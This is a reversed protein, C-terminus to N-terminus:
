PKREAAAPKAKEGRGDGKWFDYLSLARHPESPQKSTVLIGYDRVVFHLGVWVGNSMQIPFLDELAQFVAGLPVDRLQLNIPTDALNGLPTTVLFTVGPAKQELRKLAEQVPMEKFDVSVSTDLAKRIKEAVSGGITPQADPQFTAVLKGTGVDWLRVGQRLTLDKLDRYRVARDTAQHPKGQLYLAQAELDALQTKAAQLDRAQSEVEKQTRRGSKYQDSAQRFADEAAKVQRKLDDLNRQLAVVKQTVALRTRSLEAEAERLKAEAVRIDPNDKLAQELLEALGAAQGAEGGASRIEAPKPKDGGGAPV